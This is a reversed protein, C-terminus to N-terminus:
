VARLWAWNRATLLAAVFDEVTAPDRFELTVSDHKNEGEDYSAKAQVLGSALDAAPMVEVTHTLDPQEPNPTWTVSFAAPAADPEEGRQAAKYEEIRPDEPMEVILNDLLARLHEVTVHEGPGGHVALAQNAYHRVQELLTFVLSKERSPPLTHWLSTGIEGILRRAAEHGLQKLETDAPHFAAANFWEGLNVDRSPGPHPTTM